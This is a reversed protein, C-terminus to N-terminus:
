KRKTERKLGVILRWKVGRVCERIKKGRLICALGLPAVETRIGLVWPSFLPTFFHASGSIAAVASAEEERHTAAAVAAAEM